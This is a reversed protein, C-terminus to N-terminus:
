NPNFNKNFYTEVFIEHLDGKSMANPNINQNYTNNLFTVYSKMTLDYTFIHEKYHKNDFIAKCIAQFKKLPKLNYDLVNAERLTKIFFTYEQQGKFINFDFKEAKIEPPTIHKLVEKKFQNLAKLQTEQNEKTRAEDFIQEIVDLIKTCCSLKEDDFMTPLWADIQSIAYKLSLRLSIESKSSTTLTYTQEIGRVENFFSIVNSFDECKLM